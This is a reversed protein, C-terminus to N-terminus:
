LMQPYFKGIMLLGILIFIQAYKCDLKFLKFHHGRTSTTSFTIVNSFDSNFSNNVIEICLNIM